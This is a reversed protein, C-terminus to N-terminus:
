GIKRFGLGHLLIELTGRELVAYETGDDNTRYEVSVTEDDINVYDTVSM